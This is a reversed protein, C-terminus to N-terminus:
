NILICGYKMKKETKAPVLADLTQELVDRNRIM